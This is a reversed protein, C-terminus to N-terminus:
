EQQSRWEKNAFCPYSLIVLCTKTLIGFEDTAPPTFLQNICDFSSFAFIQALMASQQPPLHDRLLNHFCPMDQSTSQAANPFCSQLSQSNNWKMLHQSQSVLKSASSDQNFISQHGNIKSAQSWLLWNKHGKCLSGLHIALPVEWILHCSVINM